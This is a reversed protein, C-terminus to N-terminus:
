THAPGWSVRTCRRYEAKAWSLFIARRRKVVPGHQWWLVHWRSETKLLTNSSISSSENRTMLVSFSTCCRIAFNCKKRCRICSARNFHGPRGRRSLSAWPQLTVFNILLKRSM